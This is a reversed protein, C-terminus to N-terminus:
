VCIVKPNTSLVLAMCSLQKHVTVASCSDCFTTRTFAALLDLEFLHACSCLLLFVGIQLVLLVHTGWSFRQLHGVTRPPNCVSAKETSPDEMRHVHLELSSIVCAASMSLHQASATCAGFSWSRLFPTRSCCGLWRM